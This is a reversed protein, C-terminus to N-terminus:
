GNGDLEPGPQIAHPRGGEQARWHCLYRGAPHQGAHQHLRPNDATFLGNLPETLGNRSTFIRGDDGIVGDQGTGGSFWDNGYGGILNDDQGDGFLVDDGTM